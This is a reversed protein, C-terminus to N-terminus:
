IFNVGLIAKDSGRLFFFASSIAINILFIFCFLKKKLQFNKCLSIKGPNSTKIYKNLTKCKNIKLQFSLINLFLYKEFSIAKMTKAM